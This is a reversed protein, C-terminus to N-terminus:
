YLLPRKKKNDNNPRVSQLDKWRQMNATDNTQPRLKIKKQYVISGYASRVYIITRYFTMTFSPNGGFKPPISTSTIHPAIATAWSWLLDVVGGLKAPQGRVGACAYGLFSVMPPSLPLEPLNSAATQSSSPGVKLWMEAVAGTLLANMWDYTRLLFDLFEMRYRQRECPEERIKNVPTRADLLKHGVILRDLIGARLITCLYLEQPDLPVHLFGNWFRFYLLM